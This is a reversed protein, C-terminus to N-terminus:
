KLYAEGAAIVKPDVDRPDRVRCFVPFRVKSLANVEQKRKQDHIINVLM